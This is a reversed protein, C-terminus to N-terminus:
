GELDAVYIDYTDYIPWVYNGDVRLPTEPCLENAEHTSAYLIHKNGPMFYSCTTRGKGTSVMKPISTNMNYNNTDTIFIQDCLVGWNEYNSQFVLKSDDFSWYAEANDGGFTLQKINKFNKEGPYKINENTQSLIKNTCLMFIIILILKRKM